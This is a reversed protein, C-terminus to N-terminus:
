LPIPVGGRLMSQVAAEIVRVVKLGQRGDALPTRKLKISDIFDRCMLELPETQDVKPAYMDGERRESLLRRRGGEINFEVGKDYVKVQHDAELHDYELLKKSGGILMKRMKVPSLWSFHFHVLLDTDFRLTVYALDAAEAGYSVHSIGTASVTRPTADVIYDVISLDHPALDWVVNVDNQFAGLNIRVSDVYWLEGLEGGKILERITRVPGSYVFTHDVMLSLKNKDALEVLDSADRSNGALPKEVLVHKGEELGKRALEYHTRPPTAVAVADIDTRSLVTLADQTVEVAPYNRVVMDLRRRDMDAVVAVQCDPFKQLNRVLNPGWYGYGLVAVRLMTM